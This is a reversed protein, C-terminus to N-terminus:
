MSFSTSVLVFWSAVHMFLNTAVDDGDDVGDGDGDCDVDGADVSGDRIM